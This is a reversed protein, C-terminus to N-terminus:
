RILSCFLFCSSSLFVGNLQEQLPAAAAKAPQPAPPAPDDVAKLAELDAATPKRPVAM